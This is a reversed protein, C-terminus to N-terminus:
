ALGGKLVTAGLLRGTLKRLDVVGLLCLIGLVPALGLLNLLGVYGFFLMMPATEDEPLMRCATFSLELSCDAYVRM